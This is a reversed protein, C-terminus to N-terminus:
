TDVFNNIAYKFQKKSIKNQKIWQYVCDLVGPTGRTNYIKEIKYIFYDWPWRNSKGCKCCM